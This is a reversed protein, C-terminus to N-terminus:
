SPCNNLNVSIGKEQKRSLELMGSFSQRQFIIGSNENGEQTGSLTKM